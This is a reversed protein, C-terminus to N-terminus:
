NCDFNVFYLEYGLFIIVIGVYILVKKYGYWNWLRENM